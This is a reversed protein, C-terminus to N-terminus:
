ISNAPYESRKGKAYEIRARMMGRTNSWEPNDYLLDNALEKIEAERRLEADCPELDRPHVQEPEHGDPAHGAVFFKTNGVRYAVHVRNAALLLSLSERVAADRVCRAVALQTISMPKPSEELLKFVAEAASPKKTSM